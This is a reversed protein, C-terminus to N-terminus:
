TSALLFEATCPLPLHSVFLLAIGVMSKQLGLWLLVKSLKHARLSTYPAGQFGHSPMTGFLSNMSLGVCGKLGLCSLMAGNQSGMKWSVVAQGPAWSGRCRLMGSAVSVDGWMWRFSNLMAVSAPSVMCSPGWCEPGCLTRYGLSCSICHMLSGTGSVFHAM